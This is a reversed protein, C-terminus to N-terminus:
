ILQVHGLGDRDLREWYGARARSVM